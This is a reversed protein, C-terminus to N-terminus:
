QAPPTINDIEAISREKNAILDEYIKRLNVDGHETPVKIPDCNQAVLGDIASKVTNLAANFTNGVETKAAFAGAILSSTYKVTEAQIEAKMESSLQEGEAKLAEGKDKIEDTQASINVITFQPLRLVWRYQETTIQPIGLVFDQRKMTVTPIDSIIEVRRMYPEPVTIIIDKWRVSLGYFEPYQGVKRDVMRVDPVDFAIKERSSNIEPLDLSINQNRVTISPLDFVVEEDKWDVKFDVGIVAGADSPTEYDEGIEQGKETLAAIRPEYRKKIEEIRKQFDSQEQDPM